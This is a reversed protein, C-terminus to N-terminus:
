SYACGTSTLELWLTGEGAHSSASEVLHLLRVSFKARFEKQITDAIRNLFSDATNVNCKNSLSPESLYELLHSFAGAQLGPLNANNIAAGRRCRRQYM